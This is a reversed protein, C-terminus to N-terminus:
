KLKAHFKLLEQLTLEEPLDLYPTALGIHNYVGAAPIKKGNCIHSIEGETQTQYASIIQLLTSKGSGNSGLIAYKGGANFNFDLKRFIWTREFRKGLDQLRIEM